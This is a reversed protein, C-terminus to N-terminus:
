GGTNDSDAYDENSRTDAKLAEPQRVAVHLVPDGFVVWDFADRGADNDETVVLTLFRDNAELKVDIRVAGDKNQLAARQYKRKGDVFVWIDALGKPHAVGVNARFGIPRMVSPHAKAIAELNFTVGVNSHMALLGRYEPTYKWIEVASYIWSRGNQDREEGSVGFSRAWVPSHTVGSTPGFGDFVHGASDLQVPGSRGNPIFVGDILPNWAATPHYRNDGSFPRSGILSAKKGTDPDIGAGTAIGMGNGGCVVDLLNLVGLKFPQPMRRVFAADLNKAELSSASSRGVAGRGDTTASQGQSLVMSGSGDDKGTNARRVVVRGEFVHVKDGQDGTVEVGFETGLDTVVATPTRVFFLQSDLTSPRSGAAALSSPRPALSATPQTEQVSITPNVTREGKPGQSEVRSGRSEVRATLKGLSLFGGRASEVEYTVPGQLIVKAGTDYTIELLGSTLAYEQGLRVPSEEFTKMNPNAWRCDVMGTIRGVSEPKPGIITQVSPQSSRAIAQSFTIKYAWTGVIAVGLILASVTYSFLLAGFPSQLTFLSPHLSPTPDIWPLALPASAPRGDAESNTAQELPVAAGDQADGPLPYKAWTRLSWSVYMYRVYLKRLEEDDCVLRELRAIQEDSLEGELSATALAHLEFLRDDPLSSSSAIM